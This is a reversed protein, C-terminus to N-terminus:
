RGEAVARFYYTTEPSLGDIEESFTGTSNKNQMDTDIVDNEFNPDETYQFYVDVESAEGMDILEGNLNSKRAEVDTADNVVVQLEAM